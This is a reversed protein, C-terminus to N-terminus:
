DDGGMVGGGGGGGWRGKQGWNVVGVRSSGRGGGVKGRLWGFEVM